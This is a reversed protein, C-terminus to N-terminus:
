RVALVVVPAVEVPAQRKAPLTQWIVLLFPPFVFGVWDLLAQSYFSVRARREKTQLRKRIFFQRCSVWM